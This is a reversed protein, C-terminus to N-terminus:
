KGVSQGSVMARAHNVPEAVRSPVDPADTFFVKSSHTADRFFLWRELVLGVTVAIADILAFGMMHAEIWILDSVVPVVGLVLVIAVKMQMRSRASLEPMTQPQTRYPPKTTGTDQLRYPAFPLGFGTAPNVRRQALSFVHWQLGKMIFVLVTLALQITGLAVPPVHSAAAFLLAWSNGGYFALMMLNLVTMPSHWSLMAPITAYLMATVFLAILGFLAVVWPLIAYAGGHLPPRGVYTWLALLFLVGGFLATTLAERSLWSTKLRRLIFRAASFHHMHFFSAVGGVAATVLGAILLSWALAPTLVGRSALYALCVALGVALGQGITLALLQTAPKM